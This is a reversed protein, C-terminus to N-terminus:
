ESSRGPDTSVRAGLILDTAVRLNEAVLYDRDRPSSDTPEARAGLLINGRCGANQGAEIDSILDGIMWSEALDLGLDAAAAQLMGPGPKRLSLGLQSPDLTSPNDTCCYIADVETGQDTLQRHLEDHIEQLRALTIMGRGVASQNTVIVRAFGAAKLRRLSEATEPLLRVQAPDTLYHVHEILTGDRDFFVAPRSGRPDLNSTLMSPQESM